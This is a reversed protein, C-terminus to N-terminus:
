RDGIRYVGVESRDDLDDPSLLPLDRNGLGEDEDYNSHIGSSDVDDWDERHNELWDDELQSKLLDITAEREKITVRLSEITSWYVNVRLRLLNRENDSHCYLALYKRWQLTSFCGLLVLVAIIIM